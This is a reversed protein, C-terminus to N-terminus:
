QEAKLVQPFVVWVLRDTFLYVAKKTIEIGFVNEPNKLQFSLNSNSLAIVEGVKHNVQPSTLFFSKDSRKTNVHFTGQKFKMASKAAM